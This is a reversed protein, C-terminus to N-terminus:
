RILLMNAKLPSRLDIHGALTSSERGNILIKVAEIEDVNLILSNVISYITLLEGKAGGVHHTKLTDSFDVFAIGKATLYFAKLTTNQPITPELAKQPGALLGQVIHSGLAVPDRQKVILRNEAILYSNEKDMFYLHVIQKEDSRGGTEVPPENNSYQQSPNECAALLILCAWVGALMGFVSYAPLGKKKM